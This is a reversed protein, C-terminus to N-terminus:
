ILYKVISHLLLLVNRVFIAMTYFNSTETVPMLQPEKQFNENDLVATLFPKTIFHTLPAGAVHMFPFYAEQYACSGLCVLQNCFISVDGSFDTLNRTTKVCPFLLNRPTDALLENQIVVRLSLFLVLRPYSGDSRRCVVFHFSRAPLPLSTVAM